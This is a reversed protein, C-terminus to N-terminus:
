STLYQFTGIVDCDADLTFPTTANWVTQAGADSAGFAFLGPFFQLFLHHRAVGPNRLTLGGSIPIDIYGAAHPVPMSVRYAGSGFTTTSGMEIKFFGTILHGDQAYLGGVSGNGIAPNTTAATWVPTYFRLGRGGAATALKSKLDAVERDLRAIMQAPTEFRRGSM